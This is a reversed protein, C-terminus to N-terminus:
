PHGAANQQPAGSQETVADARYTLVYEGGNDTVVIPGLKRIRELAAPVNRIPLTGGINLNEAYIRTDPVLIPKASYRNLESVINAFSQGETELLGDRWLVAKAADVSHVDSLLKAPTYELQQNPKLERESWAPQGDKNVLEKVAVQGSLVTVVVSGNSKRYVDFETALDRIESNDVIVRFPRTPDHAVEFLVEGRELVVRRDSGIGVWRIRSRTNLHARSGDKLVLTRAEGTGTSYSQSVYERVPRFGLWSGVVVVAAAAVAAGSLRLPNALLQTLVPFRAQPAVLLYRLSAAKQEPLDQIMGLLSRFEGLVRANGPEELWMHFDQRQAVSMDDSELMTTWSAAQDEIVDNSRKRASSM